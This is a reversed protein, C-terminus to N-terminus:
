SFRTEVIDVEMNEYGILVLFLHRETKQAWVTTFERTERNHAYGILHMCTSDTAGFVENEVADM